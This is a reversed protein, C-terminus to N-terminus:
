LAKSIYACEFKDAAAHGDFRVCIIYPTWEMIRLFADCDFSPDFYNLITSLASGHTGIVINKNDNKDLVDFLAEINRRQVMRLSEGGIEHYDFDAWRRRIMEIGGGQEGVERERFREDTIIEMNFFEAAEAITDMSRKYPSCYFADIAKDKLYDLVIRRDVMGSDSLPRTRDDKYGHVPEAHRVFYVTVM